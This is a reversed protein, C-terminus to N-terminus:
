NNYGPNGNGNNSSSNNIMQDCLQQAAGAIAQQRSQAAQAQMEISRATAEWRARESPNTSMAAREEAQAAQQQLSSVMADNISNNQINQCDAKSSSISLIALLGVCLAALNVRIM